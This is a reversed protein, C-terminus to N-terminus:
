KHWKEVLENQIEILSKGKTEIMLFVACPIGILSLLSFIWFAYQEGSFDIIPQYAKTIVVNILPPSISALFIATGKVDEAFMESLIAGPVTLFGVTYAILYVVVSAVPLWQLSKGDIGTSLLYFHMGLAFMAISTGISSITLLIRRGIKEILKVVPFVVIVKIITMYIVLERPEILQFKATEFIIEMYTLLIGYGSLVTLGFIVSITCMSRRVIPSRFQHIKSELNKSRSKEVFLKIQQLEKDTDKDVHYFKISEIASKLDNKKVFFYPTDKLWLMLIIGILAVVLYFSTSLEIPLYTEAVTSLMVGIPSGSNALSISKGRIKTSSIEGLYMFLCNMMVVSPISSVIRAIYFWTVSDAVLLCFWNICMLSYTLLLTRRTGFYEVSISGLIAGLFCAIASLTAIWSLDSKTVQIPSEESVLWAFNPSAWGSQFGPQLALIFGSITFIKPNNM